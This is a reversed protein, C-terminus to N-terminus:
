PQEQKWPKLSGEDLVKIQEEVAELRDRCFKMLEAGREYGSLLQELPLQGAEIAGILQELEQLAAEYNAPPKVPPKAMPNRNCLKSKLGLAMPEVEFTCDGERERALGRIVRKGQGKM